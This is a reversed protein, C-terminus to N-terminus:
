FSESGVIRTQRHCQREDKGDFVISAARMVSKGCKIIVFSPAAFRLFGLPDFLVLLTIDSVQHSAAASNNAINGLYGFYAKADRTM